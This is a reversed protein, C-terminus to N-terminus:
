LKKRYFLGYEDKGEVVFGLSEYLKQARTNEHRTFLKITKSGMKALEGIAYLMLERGCGKGQFDKDVVLFLIRGQYSTEMYYTVFGAPQNDRYLLKITMKGFHQPSYKNPSLTDLIHDMDPNPNAFLMWQHEKFQRMAFPKDRGPVYDQISGFSAPQGRYYLFASSLVLSGLLVGVVLKKSINKMM